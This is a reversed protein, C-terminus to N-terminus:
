ERREGDEDLGVTEAAMSAKSSELIQRVGAAMM